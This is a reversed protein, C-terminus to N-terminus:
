PHLENNAVGGSFPVYKSRWGDASLQTTASGSTVTGATASPSSAVPTPSQQLLPPAAPQTLGRVGAAYGGAGPPAQSIEIVQGTPVFRQPEAPATADNVRMGNLALGSSRGDDHSEASAFTVPSHYAAPRGEPSSLSDRSIRAGVPLGATAPLSPPIAASASTTSVVGTGIAEHTTQWGSADQQALLASPTAAVQQPDASDPTPMLQAGAPAGSYYGDAKGYSNTGPPPVRPSGSGAFPQFSPMPAHCGTALLASLALLAFRVMPLKREALSMVVAARAASKLDFVL